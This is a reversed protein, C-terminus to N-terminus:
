PVTWKNKCHKEGEKQLNSSKSREEAKSTEGVVRQWLIFVSSVSLLLFVCNPYTRQFCLNGVESMKVSLSVMPNLDLDKGTDARIFNRARPTVTM